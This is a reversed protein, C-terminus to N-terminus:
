GLGLRRILADILASRARPDPRGVPSAFPAERAGRDLKRLAEARAASVRARGAADLRGEAWRAVAWSLAAHRTEDAALRAFTRRVSAERAHAAQWHLILAGFTENICGEVANERAIAELSRPRGRRVRPAPVTAGHARAHRAMMRAHREEDGASRTAALVLVSPADHEALEHAMRRFAHVSAAEDHAMRAFYAGLATPSRPSPPRLLGRPRRGGGGGALCGPCSLTVPGGDTPDYAGATCGEGELISCGIAIPGADAMGVDYVDCGIAMLGPSLGCSLTYFCLPEADPGSDAEVAMTSCFVSGGGADEPPAGDADSQLQADAAADVGAEVDAGAGADGQPPTGLPGCAEALAAPALAFVITAFIRRLRIQDRRLHVDASHRMQDHRM